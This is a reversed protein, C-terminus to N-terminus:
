KNLSNLFVFSNNKLSVLFCKAISLITWYTSILMVIFIKKILKITSCDSFLEM